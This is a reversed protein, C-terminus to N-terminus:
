FYVLPFPTLKRAVNAMFNKRSFSVHLSVLVREVQLVVWHAVQAMLRDDVQLHVDLPEM